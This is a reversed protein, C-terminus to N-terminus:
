TRVSDLVSLQVTQTTPNTSSHSQASPTPTWNQAVIITEEEYLCSTFSKKTARLPGASFM